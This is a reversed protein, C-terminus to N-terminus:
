INEIILVLVLNRNFNSKCELNGLKLRTDSLLTKYNSQFTGFVRTNRKSIPQVSTTGCFRVILPRIACVKWLFKREQDCIFKKHLKSYYFANM